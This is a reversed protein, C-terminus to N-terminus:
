PATIRVPVPDGEPTILEDDETTRLFVELEYGDPLGSFDEIVNWNNSNNPGAQVQVVHERDILPEHGPRTAVEVRIQRGEPLNTQGFLPVDPEPPVELVDGSRDIDAQPDLVFGTAFVERAIFESTNGNADTATAMLKQGSGPAPSPGVVISKDGPATADTATFTDSGVYTEGEEGDQDSLYFHVELPFVSAGSGTASPDSDVRYDVQWDGSGSSFSASAIHPWNQLRNPGDDTDDSDNATRGNASESGGALDIGIDGNRFISNVDIRHGNTGTGAVVIGDSGNHAIVNSEGVLSGGIVSDFGGDEIVIGHGANGPTAGGSAAPGIRNNFVRTRAGQLTLGNGGNGSITNGLGPGPQGIYNDGGALMRIGDGGNGEATTGDATLGIYNGSIAADSAFDILIGAYTNGSIVNRDAEFPGGITSNHPWWLPPSGLETFLIGYGNPIPTAGDSAMGIYNGVIPNDSVNGKLQIGALANGSIVNRTDPNTGDLGVINNSQVAIGGLGIIVGVGNGNAQMGGPGVGIMNDVIVNDVSGEGIILVGASASSESQDTGHGSIVNGRGETGISNEASGNVVVGSSGGGISFASGDPRTGIYNNEIVHGGVPPSSGLGGELEINHGLNGTIVNRGDSGIYVANSELVHIGAGNGARQGTTTVGIWCEDVFSEAANEIHIADGPFNILSLGKISTNSATIHFGHGSGISNGSLQVLPDGAYGPVTSADISVGETITPLASSLFIQWPASGAFQFEITDVGASANAQNIVERLTGSGSDATSNVTFTAASAPGLFLLLGLATVTRPANM